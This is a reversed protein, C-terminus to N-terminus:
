NAYTVGKLTDATIDKEAYELWIDKAGYFKSMQMIYKTGVSGEIEKEKKYKKAAKILKDADVGEKIRARFKSYGGGKNASGDRNPYEQWASQFKDPYKRHGGNNRPLSSLTPYEDANASMNNNKKTSTKPLDKTNTSGNQSGGDRCETNDTSGNQRSSYVQKEIQKVKDYNITYWKTKDFGAKNFNDTVLLGQEELSRVVRGITRTSWFPFVEKQWETYSNYTWYKGEKKNRDAEENIQLFYHIQQLFIAENCGIETALKANFSRIDKKDLLMRSGRM